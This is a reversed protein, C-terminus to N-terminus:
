GPTDAKPFFFLVLNKGRYDHLSVNHGEENALTFDPAKDNLQMPKKVKIAKMFKYRVLTKWALKASTTNIPQVTPTACRCLGCLSRAVESTSNVVSERPTLLARTIGMAM